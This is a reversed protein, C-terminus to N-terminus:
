AVNRLSDLLGTVTAPHTFLARQSIVRPSRRGAGELIGLVNSAPASIGYKRALPIVREMLLDSTRVLNM